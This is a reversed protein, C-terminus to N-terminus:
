REHSVEWINGIVHMNEEGFEELVYTRGTAKSKLLFGAYEKSWIVEYIGPGHSCGYECDCDCPIEVIDGKYFKLSFYECYQGVTEPDVEHMVILKGIHGNVNVANAHPTIYTKGNKQLLDGYVFKGKLEGDAVCLGRFKIERSM